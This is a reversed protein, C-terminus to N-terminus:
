KAVPQSSAVTHEGIKQPEEIKEKYEILRQDPALRDYLLFTGDSGTSIDFLMPDDSLLFGEFVSGDSVYFLHGEINKKELTKGNWHYISQVMRRKDESISYVLFWIDDPSVASFSRIDDRKFDFPFDLQVWKEGDWKLIQNKGEYIKNTLFYVDKKRTLGIKGIVDTNFNQGMTKGKRGDWKQVFFSQSVREPIM